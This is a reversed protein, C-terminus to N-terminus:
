KKNSNIEFKGLFNQFKLRGDHHCNKSRKIKLKKRTNIQHQLSPIPIYNEMELSTKGSNEEEAL